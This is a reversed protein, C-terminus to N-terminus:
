NSKIIEQFEAILKISEMKDKIDHIQKESETMRSRFEDIRINQLKEDIRLQTQLVRKQTDEIDKIKAKDRTSM